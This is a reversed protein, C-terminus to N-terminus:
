VDYNVGPVVSTKGDDVTVSLDAITPMAYGGARRLRWADPADFVQRTWARRGGRADDALL